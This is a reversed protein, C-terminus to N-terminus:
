DNDRTRTAESRREFISLSDCPESTVTTWPFTRRFEGLITRAQDFEDMHKLVTVMGHVNDYVRRARHENVAIILTVGTVVLVDAEGLVRTGRDAPVYHEMEDPKLTRPDQEIM